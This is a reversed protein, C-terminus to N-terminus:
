RSITTVERSTKAAVPTTVVLTAAPITEVPIVARPEALTLAVPRAELTEVLRIVAARTKTKTKTKTIQRYLLLDLEPHGVYLSLM